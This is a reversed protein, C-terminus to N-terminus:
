FHLEPDALLASFLVNDFSITKLYQFRGGKLMNECFFLLHWLEFKNNESAQLM